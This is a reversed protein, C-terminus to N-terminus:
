AGYYDIDGIKMNMDFTSYAFGRGWQTGAAGGSVPAGSCVAAWARPAARGRPAAGGRLTEQRVTRCGM